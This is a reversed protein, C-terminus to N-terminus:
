RSDLSFGGSVQDTEENATDEGGATLDASNAVRIKEAKEIQVVRSDHITIQVTGFRITRIADLIQSLLEHSLTPTSRSM